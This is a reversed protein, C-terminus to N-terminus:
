RDEQERILAVAQAANLIPITRFAGIDLLDADGSVIMDASGGVATALVADDDPDRLVTPPIVAADVLEFLTAYADLLEACTLGRRDLVDQFKSRAIVDHFEALLAASVALEIARAIALDSLRAPIGNWLLGFIAVNTDLVLRL